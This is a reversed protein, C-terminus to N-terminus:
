PHKGEPMMLIATAVMQLAARIGWHALQDGNQALKGM